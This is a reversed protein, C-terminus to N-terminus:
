SRITDRQLETALQWAVSRRVSLQRNRDEAEAATRANGNAPDFLVLVDLLRAVTVPDAM